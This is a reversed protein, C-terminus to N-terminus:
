GLALRSSMDVDLGEKPRTMYFEACRLSLSSGRAINLGTITFSVITRNTNGDLPGAVGTTVPSNFDLADYNTWDGTALSSANTSLQFDLRDAGRNITGLRWQEGAYSIALSELTAGTNNTFQVGITPILSGSQLGGFARDTSAAAGFSYTNGANGSGTGAAYTANANSGTESLEWGNPLITNADGSNALSDFSEMYPTNLATLSVAGAAQAPLTGGLGPPLFTACLALLLALATIRSRQTPQM